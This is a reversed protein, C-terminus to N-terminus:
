AQAKFPIVKAGAKLGDLYDAWTQMMKRREELHATRNYARGLPDKLVHALQHELFDPRIQLVEDMITRAMARFGHGTMEDKEFGMRRLAANVANESMPRAETRASPFVYKAHGTVRHLEQLIGVAQNALPVIHPNDKKSAVFRWTKEDFNIDIWEAHRLEGPRVFFLPALQLACKVIITGQYGDIARLLEAAKDPEVIAAYHKEIVPQLAGSINSAPDFEAKGSAIAYRFVQSCITRERHATDIAGRAEVKRLVELLESPKIDKIPRQGIYPFLDRELRSIITISHSPAWTPLFKTHWERAINEFTNETLEVRVAKEAKKVEGPDVGSDLTKKAEHRKNRADSLSVTPYSGLSLLKEKGGFRYKMRWLKGGSPSVLLFLGDGDFLKQPKDTPKTNKVKIDTLESSIKKPM